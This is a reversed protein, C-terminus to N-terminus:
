GGYLICNGTWNQPGNWTQEQRNITLSPPFRSSPCCCKTNNTNGHPWLLYLPSLHWTFVQLGPCQLPSVLNQQNETLWQSSNGCCGPGAWTIMAVLLLQMWQLLRRGHVTQCIKSQSKNSIWSPDPHYHKIFLNAGQLVESSPHFDTDLYIEPIGNHAYLSTFHGCESRWPEAAGCHHHLCHRTM